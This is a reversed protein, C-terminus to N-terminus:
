FIDGGISGIARYSKVTIAVIVVRVFIQIDDWLTYAKKQYTSIIRVANTLMNKIYNIAIVFKSV